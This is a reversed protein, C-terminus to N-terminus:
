QTYSTRLRLINRPYRSRYVVLLSFRKSVSAKIDGIKVGAEEFPKVRKYDSYHVESGMGVKYFGFVHGSGYGKFYTIVPAFRPDVSDLTGTLEGSDVSAIGAVRFKQRPQVDFSVLAEKTKDVRMFVQLKDAPFRKSVDKLIPVDFTAVGATESALTAHEVDLVDGLTRDKRVKAFREKTSEWSSVQHPTPPHGEYQFLTWQQGFPRSPDFREITLGGKPKGDKDYPQVTRTYAWHQDNDILKQVAEDLLQPTEARASLVGILCLIVSFSFNM